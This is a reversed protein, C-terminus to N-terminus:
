PKRRHADYDNYIDMAPNSWVAELAEDQLPLWDAIDDRREIPLLVYQSQTAADVVYLPEDPHERLARRQEESLPATM